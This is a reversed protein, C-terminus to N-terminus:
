HVNKQGKKSGDRRESGRRKGTLEKEEDKTKEPVCVCLCVSVSVSVSVRSYNVKV